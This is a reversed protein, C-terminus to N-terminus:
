RIVKVGAGKLIDRLTNQYEKLFTGLGKSDMYANDLQTDALYKTYGASKSAKAFLDEYYKIAEPPMKPPGVIGRAQPVNPIDFGAEKLTPVDPFGPIRQDAVQALARLRGARILEGAESPEIMMIDVHGGLLASVREGGSPFSVFAWDAGTNSMLVNRVVADRATVSGGSQKLKGPSAKAADTFDKMTKYPSDAKVVFLAPELVLNAIPTLDMITSKAEAQVLSDTIWVSSYIAITNTDGAKEGLYNVASTSGGGTKNQVIYTNQLVGDKELATLIARGFADTGGGPGTHVVVNVQGSPKWDQAQASASLTGALAISTLAVLHKLKM